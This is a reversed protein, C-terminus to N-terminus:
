LLVVAPDSHFGIQEVMVGCADVASLESRVLLPVQDGVPHDMYVHMALEGGVAVVFKHRNECILGGLDCSESRRRSFRCVVQRSGGVKLPNAFQGNGLDDVGVKDCASSRM